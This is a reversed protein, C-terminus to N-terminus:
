AALPMLHWCYVAGQFSPHCSVPPPPHIQPGLVNDAPHRCCCRLLLLVVVVLSPELLLLLLLLEVFYLRLPMIDQSADLATSQLSAQVNTLRSSTLM